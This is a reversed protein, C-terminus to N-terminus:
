KERFDPAFTVTATASFSISPVLGTCTLTYTTPGTIASSTMGTASSSAMGTWRDGNTGSVVCTSGNVNTVSWIVHVTSGSHILGPKVVIASALATGGGSGSGPGVTDKIPQPPNTCAGSICGYGYAAYPCTTDHYVCSNDVYRLTNTDQCYTTNRACALFSTTVKSFDIWGITTNGWAYGSVTGTNSDIPGYAPSSGKLSIFGDTTGAQAGSGNIARFWGSFVGTTANVTATCPASPCGTLDSSNASIWGINDSWAYGAINGSADITMGYNVTGCSSTNSCNMSIWGIGDSWAWGTIPTTAQSFANKPHYLFVFGLLAVVFVGVVGLSVIRISTGM